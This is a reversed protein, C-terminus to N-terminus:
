IEPVKWHMRERGEGGRDPALGYTCNFIFKVNNPLAVFLSAPCVLALAYQIVYNGVAAGEPQLTLLM